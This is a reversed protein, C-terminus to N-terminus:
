SFGAYAKNYEYVAKPTRIIERLMHWDDQILDGELTDASKKANDRYGIHINAGSVPHL